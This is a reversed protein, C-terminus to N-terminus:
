LAAVKAALDEFEIRGYQRITTEPSEHGLLAQREELDLGSQRMWWAYTHRTQHPNLYRVGAQEIMDRYWTEFTTDGIPDNRRRRDGPPYRRRYWLYDHPELRELLDLDAIAAAVEPTFPIPRDKDGKGRYVMLRGRGLDIHNRRLMRAEGRRLGTGFLISFLQGDPFPLAELIGVEEPSFIDKPRRRGASMKPVKLMPSRAIRDDFLAWEFLQNYISRSIYRSRPPIVRLEANVDAATFEDLRTDPHRRLLPATAREYAYLTRHSKGELELYDIWAEVDPYARAETHRLDRMVTDGVLALLATTLDTTCPLQYRRHRARATEAAGPKKHARSPVPFDGSGASLRTWRGDTHAQRGPTFFTTPEDVTLGEFGEPVLVLFQSPRRVFGQASGLM